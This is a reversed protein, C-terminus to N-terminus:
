IYSTYCTFISFELINYFREKTWDFFGYTVDGVVGLQAMDCWRLKQLKSDVLVCQM